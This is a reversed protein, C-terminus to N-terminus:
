IQTRGRPQEPWTINPALSTDIRSVALRYAKWKLLLKKEESTADEFDVADQLLAIRKGAQEILRKRKNEANKVHMAYPIEVWVPLGDAGSARMMGAPALNAAFELYIEPAVHVADDPWASRKEYVPLLEAPYFMNTTASYFYHM